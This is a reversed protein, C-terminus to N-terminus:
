RGRRADTWSSRRSVIPKLEQDVLRLAFIEFVDTKRTAGEFWCCHILRGDDDVRDVTMRPGGSKLQVVDGLKLTQTFQIM